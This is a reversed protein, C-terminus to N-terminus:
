SASQGPHSASTASESASASESAATVQISCMQVPSPYAPRQSPHTVPDSLRVLLRTASESSCGPRQSPRAVPDSVRRHSAKQLDAGPVAPGGDYGPEVGWGRM